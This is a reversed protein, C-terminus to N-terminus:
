PTVMVTVICEGTDGDYIFNRVTRGRALAADSQDTDFASPDALAMSEGTLAHETLLEGPAGDTPDTCLRVWLGGPNLGPAVARLHVAAESM